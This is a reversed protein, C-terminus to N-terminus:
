KYMVFSFTYKMHMKQWVTTVIDFSAVLNHIAAIYKYVRGFFPQNSKEERM